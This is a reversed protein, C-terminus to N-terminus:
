QRFPKFFHVEHRIIDKIDVKMLRHKPNIDCEDLNGFIGTADGVVGTCDGSLGSVDGWLFSCDGRLNSCNGVIQTSDGCIWTCVGILGTCDGTIKSCDGELFSCDGQLSTCDGYLRTCDGRLGSADGFIFSCDGYLQGRSQNLRSFYVDEHPGKVRLGDDMHYLVRGKRTLGKGQRALNRVGDQMAGDQMVEESM